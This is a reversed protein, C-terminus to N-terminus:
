PRGRESLSVLRRLRHNLASKTLPPRAHEALETLSLYPHRLRLTAAERLVASLRDWESSAMVKQAAEVQRRAAAAARRANAEDCNAQRNATGRVEGLVLHEEWRLRAAHAGLLALLDAATEGRKSYCAVNRGREAVRFRLGVRGLLEAFEHALGADELTLEAHVQGGPASVSGCGLFAGRLFAILCCRRRVVRRPVSLRVHYGDTLVGIENLVQLERAGDGLTIEFRRGLPATEVTRLRPTVGFPHLLGLLHRACAPLALSVRVALRGGSGIEATGAGFVLGALQAGRCHAEAPVVACLERKVEGTFSTVSRM